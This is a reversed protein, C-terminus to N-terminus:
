HARCCGFVVLLMIMIGMFISVGAVVQSNAVIWEIM